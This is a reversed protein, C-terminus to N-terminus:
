LEAVDGQKTLQHGVRQDIDVGGIGGGAADPRAVHHRDGRRAAADGHLCVDGVGDQFPDDTQRVM